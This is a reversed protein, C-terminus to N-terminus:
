VRFQDIQGGINNISDDLRSSLDSLSDGNEKIDNTNLEMEKIGSKMSETSEQLRNAQELILKNGKAMESSAIGVESTCNNVTNLVAKLRESADSQKDMAQTIESIISDTDDITKSVEDFASEADKSVTVIASIGNTIKQLQNGITKSQKGATESLKRIEDAVVSFGKGSEGAHAAEIAANMALLNTQEAINSIVGNAEQLVISDEEIVKIRNNVDKQKKVGNKAKERLDNFSEVMGSVSNGVSAINDVLTDVSDSANSVSGTQEMIMKDLSQINSAIENVSSVTSEVGQIQVNINSQFKQINTIIKSISYGTEKTSKSIDDGANILEDKSDKISSVITQMKETFANVGKVLVGIEDKSNGKQPIRKTLDAKGTAIDTIASNVHKLPNITSAIVGILVILSIALTVALTIIMFRVMQSLGSFFEDYTVTTYIGWRVSPIPSYVGIMKKNKLADTFYGIGSYGVSSNKISKKEEDSVTKYINESNSVRGTNKAGIVTMDSSDYLIPNSNKGIVKRSIIDSLYYGDYISYVVGNKGNNIPYAFAMIYKNYTDDEYPNQIYYTVDKAGSFYNKNSLDVLKGNQDISKGTPDIYGVEIRTKDQDMISSAIKQKRELTVNPDKIDPLCAIMRLLDIESFIIDNIEDSVKESATLIQSEVVNSLEKRSYSSALLILLSSSVIFVSCIIICLKVKISHM